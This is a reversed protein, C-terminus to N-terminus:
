FISNTYNFIHEDYMSDIQFDCEWNTCQRGDLM